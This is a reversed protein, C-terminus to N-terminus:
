EDTAEKKRKDRKECTPCQMTPFEFVGQELFLRVGEDINLIEDQTGQASYGYAPQWIARKLFSRIGDRVAPYISIIDYGYSSNIEYTLVPETGVLLTGEIDSPAADDVAGRNLIVTHEIYLISM